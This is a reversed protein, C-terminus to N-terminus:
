YVQKHLLHSNVVGIRINFDISYYFVATNNLGAQKSQMVRLLKSMVPGKHTCGHTVPPNWECIVM